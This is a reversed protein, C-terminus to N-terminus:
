STLKDESGLIPIKIDYYLLLFNVVYKIVIKKIKHVNCYIRLVLLQILIETVKKVVVM